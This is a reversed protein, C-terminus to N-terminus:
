TLLRGATRRAPHHRRVFNEEISEFLVSTQQNYDLMITKGTARGAFRDKLIRFTTRKEDDGEPQQNRELAYMAHCWFGIARSGKFHRIM